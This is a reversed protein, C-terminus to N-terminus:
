KGAGTRSGGPIRDVPIFRSNKLHGFAGATALWIRGHSDQFLSHPALGNLKGVRGGFASIQGNSWRNLGDYSAIWVGGDRAALVSAVGTNSLGGKLTLTAVALDRFRDLGNVTSVWVDGERDEFLIAVDNGSLGVSPGFVDTTRQRAHIVGRDSTGIWLGGDRDRLLKTTQFQQVTGALSYPETKGKVFRRIGGHTGILLAGDADEAIGHIGHPEGPM